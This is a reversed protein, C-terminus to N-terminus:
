VRDEVIVNEKRGGSALRDALLELSSATEGVVVASERTAKAHSEVRQISSVIHETESAVSGVERNIESTDTSQRDIATAISHQLTNIKKVLSTMSALTNTTSKSFELTQVIRQKIEVAADASKKALAKVENAVVRFGAGAEGASAAEISANLALLNTQDAIKSISNASRSIEISSQDLQQITGDVALGQAEAEALLQTAQRIIQDIEQIKGTLDNMGHAVGQANASIARAIGSVKTAEDSGSQANGILTESATGLSQSATRLAEVAMASQQRLSAVTGNLAKAMAGFEDQSSEPITTTIDGGAIQDLAKTVMLAPVLARRVLYSDIVYALVIVLVALGVLLASIVLQQHRLTTLDYSLRIALPQDDITVDTNLAVKAPEGARAVENGSVLLQSSLHFWAQLSTCLRSDLMVGAAIAGKPETAPGIPSVALLIPKGDIIRLGSWEKGDIAIQALETPVTIKLPGVMCLSKGDEGFIGLVDCSNPRLSGATDAITAPDGGEISLSLSPIGGIFHAQDALRGKVDDLTARVGIATTELSREAQQRGAWGILLWCTVAAILMAVIVPIIALSLIRQTFTM